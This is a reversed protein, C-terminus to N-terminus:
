GENKNDSGTGPTTSRPAAPAPGTFTTEAAEGAASPESTATQETPPPAKPETTPATPEPAKPEALPATPEPAKPEALPATPEPAAPEPAAPQPQSPEPAKPEALPASPESAAPEPAAPQPQSPEPTPAPPASPRETAPESEKVADVVRHVGSGDEAAPRPEVEEGKAVTAVGAVPTPQAGSTETQWPYKIRGHYMSVLTDILTNAVVRLDALSLGSQDLQAQTLKSFTIRQVLDEFHSKDPQDITRAAAEVADVLMLIGTEKTSPKHGPYSFDRETLGQPNNDAMNKHWFYELLSSGHHSYSFEIVDEPVGEQRLLRVGDNVHHFIARASEHANLKDHPNKGDSQNEIFYEPRATKGVDHYYAGVRVLLADGGIAHAAAEALNAMARSHEWTAPAQERLRRLLPHDLDQLDLLRGRSVEGVMLGVFPALALAFIGSGLGSFLAAMWLSYRPDLHETPDDHIDLTGSFVLTTVAAALVAVWAAMAGAKLLLRARRRRGLVFVSATGAILHVLLVQFDFNVLSAALLASGLAVGFTLRRGLFYAAALPVAAAPLVLASLATMLLIAKSGVMMLTLLVFVAAQCRLWRARGMGERRMFASIILGVVLYFVLSGFVQLPRVPRRATEFAKVLGSCEAGRELKTGRGVLHSCASSTTSLYHHENRLLTIRFYNAPLRVTVPAEEGEVVQFGDSWLEFMQVGLWLGAFLLSLVTGSFVTALKRARLTKM